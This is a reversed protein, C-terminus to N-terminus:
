VISNLSNVYLDDYIGTEPIGMAQQAFKIAACIGMNVATDFIQIAVQDNSVKDLGLKVWFMAYYFDEVLPHLQPDTKLSAPFNPQKKSVDIIVWGKWNPHFKRAIGSFTEGGNDDPDKTWEGCGEEFMVKKFALKYNAM